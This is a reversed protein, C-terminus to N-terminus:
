PISVYFSDASNLYHHGDARDFAPPIPNPRTVSHDGVVM